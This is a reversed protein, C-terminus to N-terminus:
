DRDVVMPAIALWAFALASIVGAPTRFTKLYDTLAIRRVFLAGGVELPALMALALMGVGGRAPFGGKKGLRRVSVAASRHIAAAMVLGEAFTATTRGARPILVLERIPGLIWGLAFVPALYRAAAVVLSGTSM